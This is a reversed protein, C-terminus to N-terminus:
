RWRLQEATWNVISSIVKTDVFAQGRGYAEGQVSAHSKGWGRLLSDCFSTRLTHAQFPSIVFWVSKHFFRLLYSPECWAACFPFFKFTAWRLRYWSNSWMETKHCKGHNVKNTSLLNKHSRPCEQSLRQMCPIQQPHSVYPSSYLVTHVYKFDM